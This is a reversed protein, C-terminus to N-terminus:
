RSHGGLTPKVHAYPHLPRSLPQVVNPDPWYSVYRGERCASLTALVNQTHCLAPSHPSKRWRPNDRECYNGNYM